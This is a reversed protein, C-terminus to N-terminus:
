LYRGFHNANFNEIDRKFHCKRCLWKYDKINRTYKGLSHNFSLELIKKENCNECNKSINKRRRIYNHIPKKGVKDGKWNVNKENLGLKNNKQFGMHSYTKNLENRKRRLINFKKMWDLITSHSVNINSAIQISSQELVNYM